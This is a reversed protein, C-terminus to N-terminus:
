SITQLKSKFVKMQKEKERTKKITFVTAFTIAIAACCCGVIIGALQATTLGSSKPSCISNEQTTTPNSDLLLSFDPDIIVKKNYFPINIGIFSQSTHSDSVSGLSQDLLVNSIQAPVTDVLARRIFRGYLSKDSISLKVYDLSTSTTNDFEKNSCSDSDSDIIATASIVLQLQSLRTSFPYQGINITYKLSSPKMEIEQGAFQITKQNEFYEINVSIPTTSGNKNIINSSYTSLKSNNPNYVWKDFSYMHLVKNNFDIERISVVSITAIINLESNDSSTTDNLVITPSSTNFVPQPIIIVKSNCDVGVWPSNCICGLVDNCTGHTPGGCIPTGICKSPLIPKYYEIKYPTITYYNSQTNNTIVRITFPANSPKVGDVKIILGSKKSPKLSYGQSFEVNFETNPFRGYIYLSGGETSIPSSGTIIGTGQSGIPTFSSKILFPYGLQQLTYSSYGFYSGFGILGYLNVMIDQPLGFAYPITLTCKYENYTSNIQTTIIDTCKLIQLTVSTLYVYPHEKIGDGIGIGYTFTVNRNSSGVDISKPSFDFSKFTPQIFSGGTCITEISFLQKDEIKYLPNIYPAYDTAKNIYYTSNLGYRDYLVMEAISYTQSICTKNNLTINLQYTFDNPYNSPSVISVNYLINDVSGVVIVYGRDYGNKDNIELTWSINYSENNVHSANNKRLLSTVIPGMLDTHDSIVNLQYEDPLETNLIMHYSPTTLAYEFAGPVINPPMYFKFEYRSNLWEGNITINEWQPIIYLCPDFSLPIENTELYMINYGFNNTLNVDNFLFSINSISEVNFGFNNQFTEPISLTKNLFVSFEDQYFTQYNSDADFIIMSFTVDETCVYRHLFQLVGNKLDGSTIIFDSSSFVIPDASYDRTNDYIEIKSIGNNVSYQVEFLMMNGDSLFTDYVNIDSIQLPPHDILYDFTVPFSKIGINLSYASNSLNFTTLVSVDIDFYSNNGSGYGFPFAAALKIGGSYDYIIEERNLKYDSSLYLNFLRNNDITSQNSYNKDPDFDSNDYNFNIKNTMLSSYNQMSISFNGQDYKSKLNYFYNFSGDTNSSVIKPKFPSEAIFLLPYREKTKINIFLTAYDFSNLQYFSSPNPYTLVAKENSNSIKFASTINLFSYTEYGFDLFPSLIDSAGLFTFKYRGFEVSLTVFFFYNSSYSTFLSFVDTNNEIGFINVYCSYTNKFFNHSYNSTREFIIKSTPEYCNITYNKIANPILPDSFTVNAYYKHEGISVRDSSWKYTASTASSDFLNFNGSYGGDYLGWKVEYITNPDSIIIDEYWYCYTSYRNKFTDPSFVTESFFM